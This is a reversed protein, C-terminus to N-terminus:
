YEMEEVIKAISSKAGDLHGLPIGQLKNGVTIDVKSLFNMQQEPTLKTFKECLNEGTIKKGAKNLLEALTDWLNDELTLQRDTLFNAYGNIDFGKGDAMSLIGKKTQYTIGRPYKIADVPFNKQKGYNVAYQLPVEKQGDALTMYDGLTLQRIQEQKTQMSNVQTITSTDPVTAKATNVGTQIDSQATGGPQYPKGSQEYITTIDEDGKIGPQVNPQAEPRMLHNILKKIGVGVLVTTASTAGTIKAKNAREHAKQSIAEGGIVDKTKLITDLNRQYEEIKKKNDKMKQEITGWNAYKEQYKGKRAVQNEKRLRAIEALQTRTWTQHAISELEKRKITDIREQVLKDNIERYNIIAKIRSM